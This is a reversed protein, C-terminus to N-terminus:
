LRLGLSLALFDGRGLAQQGASLQQRHYGVEFLFETDANRLLVRGISASLSFGGVEASKPLGSVVQGYGVSFHFLFNGAQPHSPTLTGLIYSHVCLTLVNFSYRDFGVGVALHAQRSFRRGLLASFSYNTSEEGLLLGGLFGFEYKRSKAGTSERHNVPESPVYHRSDTIEEIDDYDIKITKGGTVELVLQDGEVMEVIKGRAVGGTKLVVVDYDDNTPAESYSTGALSVSIMLTLVASVVFARM